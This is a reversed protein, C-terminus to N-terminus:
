LLFKPSSLISLPRNILILILHLSGSSLFGDAYEGDLQKKEALLKYKKTQFNWQQQDAIVEGLWLIIWLGIAVYDSSHLPLDKLTWIMYAPATILYLLINQIFALDNNLAFAITGIFVFNFIQFLFAPRIKQRLVPWRYDEHGKM